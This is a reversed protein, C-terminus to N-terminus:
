RCDLPKYNLKNMNLISSLHIIQERKAFRNGRKIRSYMHIDTYPAIALEKQQLENKIQDEKIRQALLM